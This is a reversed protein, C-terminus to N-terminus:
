KEIIADPSCGSAPKVRVAPVSRHSMLLPLAGAPITAIGIGLSAPDLFKTAFIHDGAVNKYTLTAGLPTCAFIDPSATVPRQEGQFVTFHKKILITASDVNLCRLRNGRVSPDSAFPAKIGFTM